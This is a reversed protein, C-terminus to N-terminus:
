KREGIFLELGQCEYVIVKYLSFSYDYKKSGATM